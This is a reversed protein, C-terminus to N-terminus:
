EELSFDFGKFARKFAEADKVEDEQTQTCDRWEMRDELGLLKAMVRRGLQIDFRFSSTLPLLLCKENEAEDKSSGRWIWVRFLDEGGKGDQRDEFKPYKRNEAEVRFAAEILGKQAMQASVPLFQWHTHVGDRRSVEWTVAGLPQEGDVSIAQLMNQLSRRYRHMETLTNERAEPEEISTLTPSHTLPIILIHAPFDLSRFTSATPLPGRATTLYADTAISTILHTQINPSSLCFFCESPAPPPRARKHQHSSYGTKSFRSFPQHESESHSRKGDRRSLPAGLPSATTGSPITSPPPDAPNISFAYLWKAKKDNGFDALSLFRTIRRASPDKETPEYFFPEREYFAHSSNSFHYRPKLVSCLNAIELRQSPKPSDPLAVESGRQISEPWEYTLLLDASNAGRLAKADDNTYFPLYKDESLGVAIDADLRGGLAVIKIGESTTLTTRKGLFYLNECVEGADKEIKGVIRQPLPHQGVSFYTHFPIRITGNLLNTIAEDDEPNPAAFLDGLVIALSFSNKAHLATLKPFVEVFKGNISGIVIVKSTM